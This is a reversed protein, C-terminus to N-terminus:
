SPRLCYGVSRVTEIFTHRENELKARLRRIHVDVTREGGFYDYGWVQALVAQRTFVRGQRAALFELLQYEKFTLEVRRRGVSIDFRARDIVLDGCRLIEPGEPPGLLRDARLLLEQSDWPLFLFDDAV